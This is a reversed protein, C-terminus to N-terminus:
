NGGVMRDFEDVTTKQLAETGYRIQALASTPSSIKWNEGYRLLTFGMYYYGQEFSFLAVRETSEGAGYIAATKSASELYNASSMGAKDPLGTKQFALSSLRKPDVDKMFNTIREADMKYIGASGTVKESSLLSYAIIKVQNAIQASLQMKNLEVYFPHDSPSLAQAPLFLNGMRETYLDFRFKESMENVACAQLTKQIDGQAVGQLFATIAQEPTKFGVSGAQGPATVTASTGSCSLALLILFSFLIFLRKNQM